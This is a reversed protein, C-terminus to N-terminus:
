FNCDVYIENANKKKGPVALQNGIKRWIDHKVEQNRFHQHEHNWLQPNEKVLTILKQLDM